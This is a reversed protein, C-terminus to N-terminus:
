MTTESAPSGGVVGDALPTNVVVPALSILKSPDYLIHPIVKLQPVPAVDAFIFKLVVKKDCWCSLSQLRLRSVVDVFELIASALVDVNDDFITNLFTFQETPLTECFMLKFEVFKLQCPPPTVPAVIDVASSSPTLEAFGM